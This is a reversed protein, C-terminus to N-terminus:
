ENFFKRKGESGKIKNIRKVKKGAKDLRLWHVYEDDSVLTALHKATWRYIKNLWGKHNNITDIHWCNKGSDWDFRELQGTLKFREQVENSIFAWNTFGWAVKTTNYRFVHYQNLAICPILHQVVEKDTMLKWIEQEKFLRIAAKIDESKSM